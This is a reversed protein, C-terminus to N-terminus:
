SSTVASRLVGYGPRGASDLAPVPALRASLDSLNDRTFDITEPKLAARDADAVGPGAPARARALAVEREGPAEGRRRQLDQLVDDDVLEAVNTLRAVLLREPTQESRDTWAPLLLRAPQPLVSLLKVVVVKLPGSVAGPTSRFTRRRLHSM